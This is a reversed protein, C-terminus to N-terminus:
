PLIGIERYYRKAGEHLPIALGDLASKLQILRGVPHGRDLLRRTSPHWLARTM